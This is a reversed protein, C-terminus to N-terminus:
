VREFSSRYARGFPFLAEEERAFHLFLIDRFTSVDSLFTASHTDTDQLSRLRARLALARRNLDGHDYEFAEVPDKM